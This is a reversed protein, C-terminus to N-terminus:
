AALTSICVSNDLFGREVSIKILVLAVHGSNLLVLASDLFDLHLDVGARLCGCNLISIELDLLSFFCNCFLINRQLLLTDICREALEVCCLAVARLEHFDLALFDLDLVDFVVAELVSQMQNHALGVVRHVLVQNVFHLYLEVFTIEEASIREHHIDLDMRM